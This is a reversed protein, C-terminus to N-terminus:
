MLVGADQDFQRTSVYRREILVLQVEAAYMKASM